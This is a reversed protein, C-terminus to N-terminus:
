VCPLQDGPIRNEPEELKPAMGSLPEM